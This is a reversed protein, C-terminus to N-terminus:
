GHLSADAVSAGSLDLNRGVQVKQLNSAPHLNLIQLLCRAMTSADVRQTNDDVGLRPHWLQDDSQAEILRVSRWRWAYHIKAQVAIFSFSVALVTARAALLPVLEPRRRRFGRRFVLGLAARTSPRFGVVVYHGFNPAHPL